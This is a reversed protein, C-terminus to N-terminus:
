TTNEKTLKHTIGFPDTWCGDPTALTARAKDNYDLDGGGYQYYGDLGRWVTDMSCALSILVPNHRVSTDDISEVIGHAEYMKMYIKDGVRLNRM